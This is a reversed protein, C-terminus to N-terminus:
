REDFLKKCNSRLIFYYFTTTPPARSFDRVNAEVSSPLSHPFSFAFCCGTSSAPSLSHLACLFRRYRSSVCCCLVQNKRTNWKKNWNLKPTNLQKRSKKKQRRRRSQREVTYTRQKTLKKRRQLEDTHTRHKKHTLRSTFQLLFIAAKIKKEAERSAKPHKSPKRSEAVTSSEFHVSITSHPAPSKIRQRSPSNNFCYCIRTPSLDTILITSGQKAM